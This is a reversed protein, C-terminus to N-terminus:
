GNIARTHVRVAALLREPPDGQSVFGTAGSALARQRAEPRASLAIVALHPRLRRALVVSDGASNACGDWDLLVLDASSAAIQELLNDAGDVVSVTAIDPQQLLVLRLAARVDADDDVVLVRLRISDSEVSDAHASRSSAEGV